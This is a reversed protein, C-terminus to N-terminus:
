LENTLLMVMFDVEESDMHSTDVCIGANMMHYMSRRVQDKGTETVAKALEERYTALRTKSIM